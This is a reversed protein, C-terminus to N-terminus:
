DDQRWILSHRVAGRLREIRAPSPPTPERDEAPILLTGIVRSDAETSAQTIPTM